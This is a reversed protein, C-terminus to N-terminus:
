EEVWEVSLAGDAWAFSTVRAWRQVGGIMVVVRLTEGVAYRRALEDMAAHREPPMRVAISGEAKGRWEQPPPWFWDHICLEGSM